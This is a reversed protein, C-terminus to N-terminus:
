SGHLEGEFTEATEDTLCKCNTWLEFGTLEHIDCHTVGPVTEDVDVFDYWVDPRHVPDSWGVDIWSVTFPELTRTKDAPGTVTILVHESESLDHGATTLM